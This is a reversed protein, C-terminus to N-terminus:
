SHSEVSCNRLKNDNGKYEGHGERLRWKMQTVLHEFRQRTPNILKLKYEINGLQPEPPLSGNDFNMELVNRPWSSSDQSIRNFLEQTTTNPDDDEDGLYDDNQDFLGIIQDSM